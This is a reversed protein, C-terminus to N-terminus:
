AATDRPQTVDVVPEDTENHQGNAGTTLRGLLELAEAPLPPRPENDHVQEVHHTLAQETAHGIGCWGCVHPLTEVHSRTGQAGPAVELRADPPWVNSAFGSWALAGPNRVRKGAEAHDLWARARDLEQAATEVQRPQWGAAVLRTRTNEDDDAAAGHDQQQHERSPSTVHHDPAGGRGRARAVGQTVDRTTVSETVRSAANSDRTVDRPIGRVKERHRRQRERAQARREDAATDRKENHEQWDHVWVTGDDEEDWLGAKVLERTTRKPVRAVKIYADLRGGTAHESCYTLGLVWVRFATDTLDIMKPHDRIRDDLWAM